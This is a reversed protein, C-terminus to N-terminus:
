QTLLVRRARYLNSKISDESKDLERAIELISRHLLHHMEFLQWQESTLERSATAELQAIREGCEYHDYPTPERRLTPITLDIMEAEEDVALPVTAHRKKKFRNAITRRTLGLVWAAFPAEGRFSGISSFINIFVEQVIEETDARNQVRKSVFPYVRPLYREYLIEFAAEDGERVRAILEDDGPSGPLATVLEAM